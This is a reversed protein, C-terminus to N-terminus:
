CRPVAVVHVRSCLACKFVRYYALHEKDRIVVGDQSLAAATEELLVDDSIRSDWYGPKGLATSGCGVQLVSHSHTVVRM